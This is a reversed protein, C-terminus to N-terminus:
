LYQALYEFVRAQVYADARDRLKPKSGIARRQAHLNIEKRLVTAYDRL